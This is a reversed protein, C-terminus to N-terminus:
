ARGGLSTCLLLWWLGHERDGSPHHTEAVSHGVAKRQLSEDAVLHTRSEIPPMFSEAELEFAKKIGVGSSNLFTLILCTMLVLNALLLIETIGFKAAM